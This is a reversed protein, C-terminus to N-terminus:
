YYEIEDFEEVSDSVAMSGAKTTWAACREYCARVYLRYCDSSWRGMTRIVTPDAGAAFLATAGGIRMSHTGFQYPDEGVAYMLDRIVDMVKRTHLPANTVPDRFLPTSKALSGSVADVALMNRVEWVPDLYKGGAGLVLPVTKGSLHHMNKCPHMMIILMETTLKAVDSRALHKSESWKVGYDCTYEASRLLGCFAVTLAARINADAPKSPDLCIDMAQRLAQPAVGRRIKPPATDLVRRLGKLMQPLRELKLGGCLKVGCERAHYGQVQSFYVAASKPSIGREQILAAVFRMCMWEEELKAFISSNPDLPRIPAIGLDQCSAFWAKVGTKNRGRDGGASAWDLGKNILEDIPHPARQSPVTYVNSQKGLWAWKILNGDEDRVVGGKEPTFPQSIVASQPEEGLEVEPLELALFDKYKTRDVSSPPLADALVRARKAEQRM